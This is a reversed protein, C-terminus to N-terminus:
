LIEHLRSSSFVEAREKLKLYLGTGVGDTYDRGEPDEDEIVLLRKAHLAAELNKLNQKGFPMNCFLTIDADGVFKLNEQYDSEEIGSFPKCTVCRLGFLSATNLDSDGESLVGASLEYGREFLYRIIGSASGGGGIIHVKIGSGHRDNSFIHYDLSGTVRNRYVLANVDFAKSLNDSALVEEATGDAMIEGNKLLVLRSCFRAATKIDHIAAVVTKGAKSLNLSLRFLQEEYSIDLNATPEDLLLIESEQALIKAFLVRQREGGSMNTILQGELKSTGSYKLCERAVAYDRKSEGYGRRLHAYRGMLVVEFATFPFSIHTDQNMLAISRAISKRDMRNVDMGNIFVEGCFSNIRNICKLLSTKGAGNPGIIGVFEGKSITLNIDQLIEKDDISYGLGQIKITENLKATKDM